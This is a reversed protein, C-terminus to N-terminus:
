SRQSSDGSTFIGYVPHKKKYATDPKHSAQM